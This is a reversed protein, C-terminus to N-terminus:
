NLLPSWAADSGGGPYPLPQLTRGMIDVSWLKTQGNVGERSFVLV